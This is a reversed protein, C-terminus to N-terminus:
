RTRDDTRPISATGTAAPPALLSGAWCDALRMGVVRLDLGLTSTEGIHQVLSPTPYWVPIGRRRAWRGVVVDANSLGQDDEQWRGWRHHCVGEDLLFARALRRPFVFALAGITWEGRHPRWGFERATYDSPCYLSVLSPRLGPWLSQEMYERLNEGDYLLADDEVLLYADAEPHRMSLESLALYYNPWNGIRPERLAGPLHTYREPVRVTGDLFLYPREWGARILREMTIELTPRRRPSTLVGVAWRKVGGRRRYRAPPLIERLSRAATAPPPGEGSSLNHQPSVLHLLARDKLALMRERAEKDLEPSRLAQNSRAFIMSALSTNWCDPGPPFERLCARCADLKVACASTPLGARALLGCVATEAEHGAGPTSRYPCDEARLPPLKDWYM